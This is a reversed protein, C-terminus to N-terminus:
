GKGTQGRSRADMGGQERAENMLGDFQEACDEPMDAGFRRRRNALRELQADLHGKPHELLALLEDCLAEAEDRIGQARRQVEVLDERRQRAHRALRADKGRFKQELEELTAIDDVRDMAARRVRNDSDERAVEALLRDGSVRNVAALRLERERGKRAVHAHLTPEDCIDLAALRQAMTLLEDGGVVLQRLRDMAAERVQLDSDETGIYSLAHVDSLQRVTQVRESAPPNEPDFETSDTM